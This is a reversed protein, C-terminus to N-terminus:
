CFRETVARAKMEWLRVDSLAAAMVDSILTGTYHDNDSRNRDIMVVISYAM